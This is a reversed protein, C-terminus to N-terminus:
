RVKQVAWTEACDPCVYYFWIEQTKTGRVTRTCEEWSIAIISSKGCAPCPSKNLKPAKAM